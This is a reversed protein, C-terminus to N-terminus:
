GCQGGVRAHGSMISRGAGRCLFGEAAAHTKAMSSHDRAHCGPNNFPSRHGERTWGDPDQPQEVPAPAEARRGGPVSDAEVAGGVPGDEVLERRAVAGDGGDGGRRVFRREGDAMGIADHSDNIRGALRTAEFGVGALNRGQGPGGGAAEIAGGAVPGQGCPVGRRALQTHPAVHRAVPDAVQRQPGAADREGRGAGVADKPRPGVPELLDPRRQRGAGRELLDDEQASRAQRRRARGVPGDRDPGRPRVRGDDRMAVVALARTRGRRNAPEGGGAVPLNKHAAAGVAEDDDPARPALSRRHRPQVGMGRDGRHRELRGLPDDEHARFVALDDRPGEPPQPRPPDQHGRGRRAAEAPGGGGDQRAAQHEALVVVPHPLRM